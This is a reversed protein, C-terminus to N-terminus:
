KAKSKLKLLMGSLPPVSLTLHAPHNHWKGPKAILNNNEVNSGGYYHSDSNIFIEYEGEKPIGFKYNHHVQPTFNFICAVYDKKEKNYRLFAMISNDVDSADIWDFGQWEFDVEHLPSNNKYHYNLDKILTHMGKHTDYNLLLWDLEKESDWETWQAFENGMFSIKKGPHAYMYTYLLRLNAFKQWTDGPMKSLMSKKGHVVEDHSLPLAFNETFAYIMSFTLQNHHYRRFLPDAEMYKLTDNMWGMNWKYDFGLGGLYTPRSVMPWSTSEEAMTIIGKFEQNLIENVRKLFRVAELNERGGYKNPIWEGEERSYDLYLMSAVADARLGDIHFKDCWFVANSLMFNIVETRGFNFILTGWDKHEGQRPDAHEYLHSGDFLRLGHDDTAFHAPVWDILVGIDNKHCENIFYMLDQPNGFRSTAAFYGTTQYGWSPDYPHESIPLLEIHTYGLDKVYPILEAALQRYSLFDDGDSKRKWSGLHVEYISLAKDFNKTRKNMWEEDSWTFRDLDNIISATAPRKEAYFGYPDSKKLPLDFDHAKIEYKYQDGEGVGPIFIEWIGQAHHKRMVHRRGDWDNFSGIVSVRIAEPACVVFHTGFVNDVKKTHAGMMEYARIHTGEGWLHLDFDSLLSPFSYPDIQTYLQGHNPEIEFHYSFVEDKDPILAEFVGDNSLRKMEIAKHGKDYLIRVKNAHPQITRVVFTQKTGIKESHLGLLSFPDMCNGSGLAEINNKSVTKKM